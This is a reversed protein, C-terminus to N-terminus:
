HDLAMFIAKREEQKHLHWTENLYDTPNLYFMKKWGLVDGDWRWPYPVLTQLSDHLNPPTVAANGTNGVKGVVEGTHVFAGFHTTVCQLHAYYHLRWKPGLVYIINGGNGTKDVSVVVGETASLVNTGEAAFIDVGKHVISQGWPYYWFTEDDWNGKVANEVPIVFSQPLLLGILVISSFAIFFGKSCKKLHQFLIKNAEKTSFLRKSYKKFDSKLM